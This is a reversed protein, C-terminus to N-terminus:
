WKDWARSIFRVCAAANVCALISKWLQVYICGARQTDRRRQSLPSPSLLSVPHTLPPGGVRKAAWADSHISGIIFWSCNRGMIWCSGPPPPVPGVVRLPLHLFSSFLLAPSINYSFCIRPPMLFNLYPPPTVSLSILSHLFVTFNSPAPWILLNYSFVSM